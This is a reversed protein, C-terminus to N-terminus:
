MCYLNKVADNSCCRCLRQAKNEDNRNIKDMTCNLDGRIKNENGENNNQMALQERASYESHVYVSFEAMLPFPCFNAKFSLFRGKPNPHDYIM